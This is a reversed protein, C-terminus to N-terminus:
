KKPSARPATGKLYEEDIELAIAMLKLVPLSPPHGSLIRHLSKIHIGCQAALWKRTRGQEELLKLAKEPKWNM